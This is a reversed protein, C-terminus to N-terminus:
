RRMSMEIVYLKTRKEETTTPRTMPCRQKPADAGTVAVVLAHQVCTEGLSLCSQGPQAGEPAAEPAASRGEHQAARSSPEDPAGEEEPSERLRGSLRSTSDARYYYKGLVVGTGNGRQPHFDGLRRKTVERATSVPTRM